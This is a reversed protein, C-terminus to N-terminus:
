LSTAYDVIQQRGGLGRLLLYAILVLLKMQSFTALQKVLAQDQALTFLTV